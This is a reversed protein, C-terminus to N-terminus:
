LRLRHFNNIVCQNLLIEVVCPAVVLARGFSEAALEESFEEGDDGADLAIWLVPRRCGFAAARCEKVTEGVLQEISNLSILDFNKDDPM